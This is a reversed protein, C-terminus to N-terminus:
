VWEFADDAEELLMSVRDVGVAEFLAELDGCAETLTRGVVGFAAERKGLLIRSTRFGGPLLRSGVSTFEPM